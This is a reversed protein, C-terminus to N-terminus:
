PDASRYAQLDKTRHSLKRVASAGLRVPPPDHPLRVGDHQHVGHVDPVPLHLGPDPVKATFLLYPETVLNYFSLILLTPNYDSQIVAFGQTKQDDKM